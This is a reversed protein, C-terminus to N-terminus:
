NNKITYFYKDIIVLRGDERNRRSSLNIAILSLLLECSFV